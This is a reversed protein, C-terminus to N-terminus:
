VWVGWRPCNVDSAGHARSKARASISGSSARAGSASLPDQEARISGVTRELARNYMCMCVCWVCVCVGYVYVCVMCMCVCWVCVCMGYVYVCVMCMCVCWVCVCVGYVYVCVRVICVLLTHSLM